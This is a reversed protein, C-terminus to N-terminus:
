WSAPFYYLQEADNAAVPTPQDLKLEKAKAMVESLPQKEVILEGDEATVTRMYYVGGEGFLSIYDNIEQKSFKRINEGNGADPYLVFMDLACNEGTTNLEFDCTEGIWVTIPTEAGTWRFRVSDNKWDACPLVYSDEDHQLGATVTDPLNLWESNEVCSKFTTDPAMRIEGACPAEVRVYAEVNYTINFQAMLERYSESINLSYYKNYDKDYEDTFTLILPLAIGWGTGAKLLEVINPDDYVGPTCTFDVYIKPASEIPTEPYFYCTMPLDYTSASYYYTGAAPISGVFSTDVPIATECSLGDPTQACLMSNITLMAALLIFYRKMNM